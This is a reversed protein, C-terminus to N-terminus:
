FDYDRQDDLSFACPHWQLHSQGSEITIVDFRCNHQKFEPHKQLFYRAANILKRQKHIHVSQAASLHKASRRYRVEVFVLENDKSMVIDLEGFRSSVNSAVTDFGKSHLFLRAQTEAANGAAIHRAKSGSLTFLSQLRTLM